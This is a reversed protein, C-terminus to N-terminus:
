TPEFHITVSTVDSHTNQISKEIRDSADHMRTLPLDGRGTVHAVVALEADVSTVIVEHCDVVDPEEQAIQKVSDVVDGRSDTVDRGLSTAQLPEIHTDVRVNSGLEKEVASEIADSLGHAEQVSTKGTMKAHLTVHLKRDGKEEFAHIQVNHIEHVGEVKSAAAQAREVLGTTESVPEVHVVVDAGPEIEHIENEVAEAIDHARELTATRGAAVTVDAFLQDGSARVRVRRTETVGAARSAAAEIADARSGPARDMLVDVSRRGVRFAAIGVFISVCLGGIADAFPFGIRVFLLSLFAVATTGVDTVINWAGALLADSSEERAAAFLSRARVADVVASVALLAFAYWPTTVDHRGEALRSIAAVAVVLALLGLFMTQIFAVLNEAKSHGYHHSRDAPKGAIRVGVFLLGLVVVDLASDLAQSLVALSSTLAWVVVKAGALVLTVAVAFRAAQEVRDARGATAM